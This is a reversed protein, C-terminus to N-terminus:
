FLNYLHHPMGGRLSGTSFNFITSAWIKLSINLTVWGRSGIGNQAM